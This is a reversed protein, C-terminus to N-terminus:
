KSGLNKLIRLKHNVFEKLLVNLKQIPSHLWASTPIEGSKTLTGTEGGIAKRALSMLDNLELGKLIFALEKKETANMESADKDNKRRKPNM